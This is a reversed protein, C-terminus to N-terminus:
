RNLEAIELFVLLVHFQILSRLQTLTRFHQTAIAFNSLM